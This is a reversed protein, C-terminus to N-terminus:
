RNHLKLISSAKPSAIQERRFGDPDFCVTRAAPAKRGARTIFQGLRSRMDELEEIKTVSSRSVTLSKRVPRYGSSSAPIGRLKRCCTVARITLHREVWDADSDRFKLAHGIHHAKLLEGIQRGIGM